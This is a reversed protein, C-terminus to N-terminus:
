RQPTLAELALRRKTLYDQSNAAPSASYTEISAIGRAMFFSYAAPDEKVLSLKHETWHPEMKNPDEGELFFFIVAMRLAADEDVPYKRRYKLNNIWVAVEALKNANVAREMEELIKDQLEPTIGCAAYINGATAAVYRSQHYATDEVPEYFIPGQYGAPLPNPYAPRFAPNNAFNM